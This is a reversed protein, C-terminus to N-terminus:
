TLQKARLISRREPGTSVLEIEAGAWHEIARLYSRAESPLDGFCQVGSLDGWVEATEYKPNCEGLAEAEAPVTDLSQAGYDYGVCVKVTDLGALTDMKTVALSTVGNARCAYRLAVLDLWGCRRPRGTTAGFEEGKQRVETQIPEEMETPLPGGGVRTVYAKAVGVISTVASPPIGCGALLGHIGTNCSTVYPYSGHDIDLLFGQSGELVIRKNAELAQFLIAHTDAAIRRITETFGELYAMAAEVSGASRRDDLGHARYLAKVRDALRKPELLDCIRIGLRSAKDSYCPGIGRGTTGIRAKGRAEEHISEIERHLPLVVHARKSVALRKWVDIGANALNEIEAHLVDLDVVVGDAILCYTGDTLIGSPVLHLVRKSGDIVVTHGANAGGQCRVVLHANECLADVIKGKGEDGWQVGLVAIVM